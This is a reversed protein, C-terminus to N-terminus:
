LFHCHITWNFCSIFHSIEDTTKFLWHLLHAKQGLM